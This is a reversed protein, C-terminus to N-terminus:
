LPFPHIINQAGSKLPAASPQPTKNTGYLIEWRLRNGRKQLSPCFIVFISYGGTRRVDGKGFPSM